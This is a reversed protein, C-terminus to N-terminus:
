LGVKLVIDDLTLSEGGGAVDQCEDQELEDETKEMLMHGVDILENICMKSSRGLQISYPRYNEMHKCLEAFTQVMNAENRRSSLHTHLFHKQFAKHLNHYVQVLLSELLIRDITQNSFKGGNIVKTFLNNLEVCWNVARFKGKKGTPNILM